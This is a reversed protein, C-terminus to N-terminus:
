FLLRDLDFGSYKQFARKSIELSRALDRPHSKMRTEIHRRKAPFKVRIQCLNKLEGTYLNHYQPLLTKTSKNRKFFM